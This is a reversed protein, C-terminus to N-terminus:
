TSNTLKHKRGSQPREGPRVRLLRHAVVNVHLNFVRQLRLHLLEAHVLRIMLLDGVQVVLDEVQDLLDVLVLQTAIEVEPEDVIRLLENLLPQNRLRGIQLHNHQSASM